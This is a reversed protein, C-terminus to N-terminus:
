SLSLRGKGATWPVAKNSLALNRRDPIPRHTLNKESCPPNKKASNSIKGNLCSFASSLRPYLLYTMFHIKGDAPTSFKECAFRFFCSRHACSAFLFFERLSMVSRPQGGLAMQQLPLCRLLFNNSRNNSVKRGCSGPALHSPQWSLPCSGCGPM